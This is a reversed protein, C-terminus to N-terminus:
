CPITTVFTDSREGRPTPSHVIARVQRARGGAVDRSEWEVRYRGDTLASDTIAACDTSRLVEFRQQAYSTAESYRQGQAIMRTTLAATSVLALLGM